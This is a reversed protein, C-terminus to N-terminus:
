FKWKEAAIMDAFSMWKIGYYHCVTPIKTKKRTANDPKEETIVTCNSVDALVIVYPDAQISPNNVDILRPFKNIVETIKDQSAEPIEFYPHKNRKVWKALEDDKKQIEEFVEMPSIILGLKGYESVKDWVSDFNDPRYNVRWATILSSTDLCYKPKDRM